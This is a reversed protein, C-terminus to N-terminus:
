RRLALCSRSWICDLGLHARSWSFTTDLGLGTKLVTVNAEPVCSFMSSVLTLLECCDKHGNPKFHIFFCKKQNSIPMTIITQM